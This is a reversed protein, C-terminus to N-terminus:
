QDDKVGRLMAAFKRAEAFRIKEELMMALEGLEQQEFRNLNGTQTFVLDIEAVSQARHLLMRAEALTM